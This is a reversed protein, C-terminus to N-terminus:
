QKKEEKPNMAAGIVDAFSDKMVFKSGYNDARPKVEKRPLTTKKAKTM